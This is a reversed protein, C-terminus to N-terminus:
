ALLVARVMATTSCRRAAVCLRGGLFKGAFPHPKCDVLVLVTCQATCAMAVPEKCSTLCCGGKSVGAARLMHLAKQVEKVQTAQCRQRYLHSCIGARPQGDL